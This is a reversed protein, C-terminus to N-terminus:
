VSKEKGDLTHISIQRERLYDRALPTLRTDASIEFTTGPALGEVDRVTLWKLTPAVTPGPTPQSQAIDKCGIQIPLKGRRLGSWETLGVGYNRVTDLYRYMAQSYQSVPREHLL